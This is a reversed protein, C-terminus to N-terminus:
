EALHQISRIPESPSDTLHSLCDAGPPKHQDSNRTLPKACFPSSRRQLGDWDQQLLVPKVGSPSLLSDGLGPERIGMRHPPLSGCMDVPHPNCYRRLQPGAPLAKSTPGHSELFGPSRDARPPRLRSQPSLLSSVRMARTQEASGPTSGPQLAPARVLGLCPSHEM